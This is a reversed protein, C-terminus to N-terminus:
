SRKIKLFRVAMLFALGFFLAGLVFPGHSNWSYIGGAIMAGVISGLSQAGNYFGMILNEQKREAKETIIDQILPISVSNASYLLIGCFILAGIQNLFVLSGCLFVCIGSLLITAKQSQKRRIIAFCLTVNSIFSVIGVVAKIMGNYSSGLNLEAKLFYNFTQDFATQGIYMFICIAFIGAFSVTMFSRCEFFAHFPNSQLMIQRLRVPQQRIKKRKERCVLFFFFGSIILVATQIVFVLYISIEGLLGGILYGFSSFVSQVTANITLYGSREHDESESVIYTLFSVFIAGAFVGAGLRALVILPETKAMAFGMQSLGYGICGALIVYRTEVMDNLKGWFPSFLFNTAMMSAFAVGFMYDHLGLNKILAPTVPHAFNAGLCFVSMIFFFFRFRSKRSM